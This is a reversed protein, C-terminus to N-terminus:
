FLQSFGYAVHGFADLVVLWIPRTEFYQESKLRARLNNFNAARGNLESVKRYGGKFFQIKPKRKV